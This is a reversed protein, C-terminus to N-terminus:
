GTGTSRQAPTLPIRGRQPKLGVLGCNAAPIRISGAGDSATAAACLGAAVAAGSGGSSGRPTRGPGLTARSGSRPGETDGIIALEPLNTKGILVAGAARLRRVLESDRAAPKTFAATGWRTVEGAVDENDKVALPVGLLPREDGAARRADAQDADALARERMVLRFANLEPDFREIRELYLEVLERSSVEGARVLEAQAAVGAFALDDRDM